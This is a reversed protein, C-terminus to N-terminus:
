FCDLAEFALRAMLTLFLYAPGNGVSGLCRDEDPHRWEFAPQTRSCMRQAGQNVGRM